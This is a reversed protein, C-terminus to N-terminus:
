RASGVVVFEGGIRVDRGYKFTRTAVVSDNCILAVRHGHRSSGIIFSERFQGSVTRDLAAQNSGVAVVSLLCASDSPTSGVAYFQGDAPGFSVCGALWALLAFFVISRLM